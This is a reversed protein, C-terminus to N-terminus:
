LEATFKLRAGTEADAHIHGAQGATWSGATTGILGISTTSNAYASMASIDQATGSWEMIFDGAASVTMTPATRMTVPLDLVGRSDTTTRFFMVCVRYHEHDGGFSQYYRKCRALEEAYSKHEYPTANEGVEWQVGTLYFNNATNDMCNVQGVARNAATYSAWSTALTGSTFNSGASLVFSLQASENIDNGFAGTTDGAFTVSHNEWTNASAVTYSKSIQRNNDNDYLWVIHVGTKPSKVWFSLTSAKAGSVGKAFRQLDEGAFKQQIANGDAAALSADATTVDFKLSASFGQGSPVDSDQTLDGVGPDGDESFRWRDLAFSGNSAGTVAGRQYIQMGGNYVINRSPKNDLQTQVNSTVGDLYDFEAATTGGAVYDALIRARSM